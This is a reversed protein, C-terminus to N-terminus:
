GNHEGEMDDPKKAFLKNETGNKLREINSRHMYVVLLGTVLACVTYSIVSPMDKHKVFLNICFTIVPYSLAATMSAVSVYRTILCIAIFLPIVIGFTIPDIVILVSSAVLAGKGGKFGYWVPFIHGLIAFMGAVYGILQTDVGSGVLKTEIFISLLVAIVGKALDGILTLLAAGKGYVRLTNTLGANKSGYDRIDQHYLLHSVIIASNCSGLLYSIVVTLLLSLAIM